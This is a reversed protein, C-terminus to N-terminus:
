DEEAFWAIAFSDQDLGIVGTDYTLDTLPNLTSLATSGSRWESLVNTWWAAGPSLLGIFMAALQSARQASMLEADYALGRQLCNSLTTLAEDQTLLRLEGDRGSFTWGPDAPFPWMFTRLYAAIVEGDTGAPRSGAWTWTQGCARAARLEWALDSRADSVFQSPEVPMRGLSPGLRM